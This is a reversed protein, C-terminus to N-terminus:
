GVSVWKDVPQFLLANGMASTVQYHSDSGAQWVLQIDSDSDSDSDRDRDRDTKIEHWREGWEGVSKWVPYTM